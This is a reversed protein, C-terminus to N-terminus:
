GGAEPADAWVALAGNIEAEALIRDRANETRIAEMLKSSAEALAVSLPGLRALRREPNGVICQTAGTIDTSGLFAVDRQAAEIADPIDSM